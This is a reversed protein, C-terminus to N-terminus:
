SFGLLLSLRINSFLFFFAVALEVGDKLVDGGSKAEGVAGFVDEAEGGVRVGREKAGNGGEDGYDAM